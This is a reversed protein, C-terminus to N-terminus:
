AFFDVGKQIYTASNSQNKTSSSSNSKSSLLKLLKELFTEEESEETSSTSNISSGSVEAAAGPPPGPPPGFSQGPPPAPPFGTTGGFNTAQSEIGSRIPATPLSETFKTGDLGNNNLVRQVAKEITSPTPQQKSLPSFSLAEKVESLIKKQSEASVGQENLFATLDNELGKEPGSSARPRSNYAQRVYTSSGIASISSM